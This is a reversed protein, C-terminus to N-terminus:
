YNMIQIQMTGSVVGCFGIIQAYCCFQKYWSCCAMVMPQGYLKYTGSSPRFVGSVNLANNIIFIIIYIEDQQDYLCISIFHHV